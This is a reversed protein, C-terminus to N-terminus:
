SATGLVRVFLIGAVPDPEEDTCGTPATLKCNLSRQIWILILLGVILLIKLALILWEVWGADYFEGSFIEALLLGILVLLLIYKILQPIDLIRRKRPREQVRAAQRVEGPQESMVEGEGPGRSLFRNPAAPEM